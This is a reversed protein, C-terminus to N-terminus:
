ILYYLSIKRKGTVWEWAVWKFLPKTPSNDYKTEPGASCKWILHPCALNGPSLRGGRIIIPNLYRGDNHHSVEGNDGYTGEPRFKLDRQGGSATQVPSATKDVSRTSFGYFHFSIKWQVSSLPTYWLTYWHKLIKEARFCVKPYLESSWIIVLRKIITQLNPFKNNESPQSLLLKSNM